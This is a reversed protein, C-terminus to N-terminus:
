RAYSEIWGTPASTWLSVAVGSSKTVGEVIVTIVCNERKDGSSLAKPIQIASCLEILTNELLAGNYYYYGDGGVTWNQPVIADVIESDGTSSVLTFKARILTPQANNSQFIEVKQKYSMGSLTNRPYIIASASSGDPTAVMKIPDGITYSTHSTKAAVFYSLVGITIMSCALVISLVIIAITTGKMKGNSQGKSASSQQQKSNTATTSQKNKEKESTTTANDKKNITTNKNSSANKSQSNSKSANNTADQKMGQGKKMSSTNTKKQAM